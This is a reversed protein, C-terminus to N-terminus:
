GHFAIINEPTTRNAQSADQRMAQPQNYNFNIVPFEPQFDRCAKRVLWTGAQCASDLHLWLFFIGRSAGQKIKSLRSLRLRAM